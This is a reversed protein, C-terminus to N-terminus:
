AEPLGSGFAARHLRDAIGRWEDTDPVQEVLIQTMGLEDLWRMNAYLSQAYESAGGGGCRQIVMPSEKVTPIMTLIGVPSGKGIANEVEAELQDSVVLRLPTQPAYHADLSGSVKPVTTTHSGDDAIVVGDSLAGDIVSTLDARSIMGPRLTRPTMSTLDVITSEIGVQCNGGDLILSVSDGLEAHM